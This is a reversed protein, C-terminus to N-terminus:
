LGDHPRRDLAGRQGVGLDFIVRVNRRGDPDLERDLRALPRFGLRFEFVQLTGRDNDPRGRRPGDGGVTGDAEVWLDAIRDILDRRHLALGVEAERGPRHRAVAQDDGVLQGVADQLRGVGRGPFLQDIQRRFHQAVQDQGVRQGLDVGAVGKVYRHQRAIVDGVIGTGAEHVGGWAVAGVVVQHPELVAEAEIRDGIGDIGVTGIIRVHGQEGAQLDQFDFAFLGALEARGVARDHFLQDFGAIQQRAATDLVGIRMRPPGFRRDDEAVRRLPEDSHIAIRFGAVRQAVLGQGRDAAGFEERGAPAVADLGHDFAPRVPQDRALAVPACRQGHIDVLRRALGQHIFGDVLADDVEDGRLAGIGPEGARVAVEQAAVVVRGVELLDCVDEVDPEIRARGVGEGQFATIVALPRGVEIKLTGVLVAAPELRRQQFTAAGAATRREVGDQGMAENEVFLTLLHGLGLAIDDRRLVDGLFRADFDQAQPDRQRVIGFVQADALLDDLRGDVGIALQAIGYAVQQARQLAIVGGFGDVIVIHRRQFAIDQVLDMAEILAHAVGIRTVIEGVDDARDGIEARLGQRREIEVDALVREIAVTGVAQAAAGAAGHHVDQELAQRQPQPRDHGEGHFLGPGATVGPGAGVQEADQFRHRVGPGIRGLGVAPALDLGHQANHGRSKFFLAAVLDDTRRQFSRRDHVQRVIAQQFGEFADVGGLDEAGRLRRQAVFDCRTM